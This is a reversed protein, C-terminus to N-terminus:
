GGFPHAPRGTVGPRCRFLSGARPQTFPADAPLGQWASTIYLDALDPGGFACKTPQTVPMRITRDLQGDPAYRRVTSGGWLAVWLFGQADVVLGDPKGEGDPVIVLPRRKSLEGRELDFDFVDVRSTGSDIYYMQRSDLSWDIGNSTTIGTLMRKVHGDTDLRYLAAVDRRRLMSLTGAWFRGRADCYGDNMRNEPHDEEVAALLSTAGTSPDLRLFGDRAAIIWDGRVSPTVAGVPQDVAIIDDVGTAPDFAHVEGRMINVFLLRQREADWIPGEGLDARVDLAIELDVDDDDTV